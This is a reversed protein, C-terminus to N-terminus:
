KRNQLAQLLFKEILEENKIDKLVSEMLPVIYAHKKHLYSFVPERSIDLLKHIELYNNLYLQDSIAFSNGLILDIRDNILMKLGSEYTNFEYKNKRPIYGDSILNDLIINPQKSGRIVGIRYNKDKLDEIQSLTLNNTGFLSMSISFPSENVRILDPHDDGYSYVRSLEGDVMGTDLLNDRRKGPYVHYEWSLELRNFVEDYIYYLLRGQYTKTPSNGSVMILTDNANLPLISVLLFLLFKM